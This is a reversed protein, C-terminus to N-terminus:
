FLGYILVVCVVVFLTKILLNHRGKLSWITGFLGTAILMPMYAGSNKDPMQKSIAMESVICFACAMSLILLLGKAFMNTSSKTSWIIGLLFTGAIATFLFFSIM